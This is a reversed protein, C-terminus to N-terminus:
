FTTAYPGTSQAFLASAALSLAITFLPITYRMRRRDHDMMATIGMARWGDRGRGRVWAPEKRSAAQHLTLPLMDLSAVSRTRCTHSLWASLHNSRRSTMSVDDRGM